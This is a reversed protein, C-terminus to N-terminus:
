GFREMVIGDAGVVVDAYSEGGVAAGHLTKGTPTEQREWGDSELEFVIGDVGGAVGRDLRRDIAHVAAEVSALEHWNHGTYLQISGDDGVATVIGDPVVALDNITSDFGRIGVPTWQNGNTRYVGGATDGLFGTRGVFALASASEGGSPKTSQGWTLTGGGFRGAIYEGSSNVLRVRESGSRGTVAIAAWSSTKGKPASFDRLAGSAVDFFGLAGSSGATWIRRGDDTVDASLLATSNGGPGADVVTEWADETRSLMRGGEGVAVPGSYTVCVDYLAGGNPPNMELWGRPPSSSSCGALATTGAAGLALLLDRRSARVTPTGTEDGDGAGGDAPADSTHNATMTM